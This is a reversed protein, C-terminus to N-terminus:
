HCQQPDQMYQILVSVAFTIDLRTVTLYILKRILCKYRMTDEFKRSLTDDLVVNQDMSSRALKAGLMCTTTLLDQIYKQQLLIEGQKSRAVEIGLFHCLKGLDKTQFRRKMYEKVKDIRALDSSSVIIGDVYVVLVVIGLVISKVLVLHNSPCQLFSVQMLVGSMKDFWARPSQKLGHLAKKSRCVLHREGQAVFWPPQEM